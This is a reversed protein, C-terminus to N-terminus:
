ISRRSVSEFYVLCKTSSIHRAVKGISSAGSATLTFTDDDTAYVTEHEDGVGTVGTVTLVIYGKQLVKVNIAGAAGASNDAKRQAFGMFPDAAVLPRAYGSGNDGVVAGEYIIDANVVPLNNFDEIQGQYERVKNDSLTTGVLFLLIVILISLEM